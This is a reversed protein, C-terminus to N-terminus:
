NYKSPNERLEKIEPNLIVCIDRDTGSCTTELTEGGYNCKNGMDIKLNDTLISETRNRFAPIFYSCFGYDLGSKQQMEYFFRERIWLTQYQAYDLDFKNLNELIYEELTAWRTQCHGSDKLKTKLGENAEVTEIMKEIAEDTEELKMKGLEDPHVTM